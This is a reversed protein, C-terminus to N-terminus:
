VWNVIEESFPGIMVLRLYPLSATEICFLFACTRWEFQVEKAFLSQYITRHLPLYVSLQPQVSGLKYLITSKFHPFLLFGYSVRLFVTFGRLFGTPVDFVRCLVRVFVTFGCFGSFGHTVRAYGMFEWAYGMLFGYHFVQHNKGDRAMWNKAHGSRDSADNKFESLQKLLQKSQPGLISFKGCSANVLCYIEFLLM